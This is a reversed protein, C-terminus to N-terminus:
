NGGMRYLSYSYLGRNDRLTFNPKQMMEPPLHFIFRPGNASDDKDEAFITILPQFLLVSILICHMQFREEKGAEVKLSEMNPDAKYFLSEVM